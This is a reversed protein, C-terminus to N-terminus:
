YLQLYIIDTDLNPSIWSSKNIGWVFINIQARDSTVVYCIMESLGTNPTTSMSTRLISEARFNASYEFTKLPSPGGLGVTQTM